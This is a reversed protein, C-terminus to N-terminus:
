RVEDVEIETTRDVFDHGAVSARGQELVAREQRSYGTFDDSRRSTQRDGRFDADPPVGARDIREFGGANEFALPDGTEGHM